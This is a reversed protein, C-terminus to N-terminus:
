AIATDDYEGRFNRPEKKLTDPDVLNWLKCLRNFTVTSGCSVRVAYVDITIITGMHGLTAPFGIYYATDNVYYM